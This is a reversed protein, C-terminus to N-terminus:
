WNSELISLPEKYQGYAYPEIHWVQNKEINTSGVRASIKVRQNRGPYLITNESDYIHTVASFVDATLEGKSRLEIITNANREGVLAQLIPMPSSMPNFPGAVYISFVSSLQQYNTDTVGPLAMLDSMLAIGANRAGFPYSDAELGNLRRLNDSDQWDLLSDIFQSPEIGPIKLLSLTNGLLDAPPNQISLLGSQDQIQINVINNLSFPQNHFNWTHVLKVTSTVDHVMPNTMMTYMLETEASKIQLLAQARDEFIQATHIQQRATYTLYLAFVSIMASILLVQILAIGKVKLYTTNKM